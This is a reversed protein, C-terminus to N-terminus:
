VSLRLMVLKIQDEQLSGHPQRRTRPMGFASEPSAYGRLPKANRPLVSGPSSKQPLSHLPKCLRGAKSAVQPGPPKKCLLGKAM